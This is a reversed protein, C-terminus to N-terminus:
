AYIREIMFVLCNKKPVRATSSIAITSGTTNAVRIGARIKSTNGTANNTGWESSVVASAGEQITFGASTTHKWKLGALQNLEPELGNVMFTGRHWGGPLVLETNDVNMSYSADKYVIELPLYSEGALLTGPSAPLRAIFVVKSIGVRGDYHFISSNLGDIYDADLGSGSGDRNLIEQWTLGPNQISSVVM